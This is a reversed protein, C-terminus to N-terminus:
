KSIVCNACGDKLKCIVDNKDLKFIHACAQIRSLGMPRHGPYLQGEDNSSSGRIPSASRPVTMITNSDKNYDSCRNNIYEVM